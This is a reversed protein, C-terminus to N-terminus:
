RFAIGIDLAVDMSSHLDVRGTLDRGYGTVTQDLPIMYGVSLRTTFASRGSKSWRLAELGVRGSLGTTNEDCGLESCDLYRELFQIEGLVQAQLVWGAGEVRGDALIPAIGARLHVESRGAMPPLLFSGGAEIMWFEKWQLGLGGGLVSISDPRRDGNVWGFRTAPAQFRLTLTLNSPKADAQAQGRLPLLISALFVGIPVVRNWM